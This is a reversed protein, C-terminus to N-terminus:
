SRIFLSGSRRRLTVVFLIVGSLVTIVALGAMIKLLWHNFDERAEYDMIHLGWLFDYLRWDDTRVARLQGSKVGIYLHSDDELLLRWAPLEGGRYEGGAEVQEVLRASMVPVQSIENAAMIAQKENVPPVAQGSVADFVATGTELDVLYVPQGLRSKIQLDSVAIHKIQQHSRLLQSPSILTFRDLPVPRAEKILHNGRIEEIPILSFFLGSLTWILLQIGAFLGLYRHIKRIKHKNILASKMM